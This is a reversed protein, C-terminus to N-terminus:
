KPRATHIAPGHTAASASRRLIVDAAEPSSRFTAEGHPALTVVRGGPPNGATPAIDIWLAAQLRGAMPRRDFWDAGHFLESVRILRVYADPDILGGDLFYGYKMALLTAHALFAFLLPITYHWSLLIKTPLKMSMPPDTRREPKANM